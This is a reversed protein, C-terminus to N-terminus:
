THYVLYKSICHPICRGLCTSFSKSTSEWSWIEYVSLVFGAIEDGYCFFPTYITLYKLVSNSLIRAIEM